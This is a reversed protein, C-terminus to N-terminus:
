IAGEENWDTREYIIVLDGEPEAYVTWGAAELFPKAQDTLPDHKSLVCFDYKELGFLDTVNGEEDKALCSDDFLYIQDRDAIHPLFSTNALVSAEKPISRISMEATQYNAENGKYIDVLLWKGSAMATTTVVTVIAATIMARHRWLKPLDRANKLTLYLLLCSPGFIYQYGIKIAYEYGAGIILNMLVYPLLLWFRHLKRTLFPLFLLPFMTQIFFVLTEERMLLSILYAPDQFVTRVVGALGEQPNVMLDRFRTTTMFVGDGYRNLWGMICVFYIAALAAALLGHKRKDGKEEFFFFLGICIVFVPADEKVICTLASMVYFLPINKRDAAYLLWILITPLFANEHFEYYCPMILGGYFLGVLCVAVRVFGKYGHRGAILFFPVIGAVALFAQAILLTEGRPFLMYVPLLLYYIYSGHIRFHSMARARECTTVATLHEKLSHFMQVFIGMDFCNTGFNLYNAVTTVAVFAFVAVALFFVIMGAGADPIREFCKMNIKGLAYNVLIAAIVAAAMGFYFSDSKWVLCLAFLPACVALIGYDVSPYRKSLIRYLLSLGLILIAIWLLKGSLSNRVAFEQWGYIPHLGQRRASVFEYASVAFFASLFRAFFHELTGYSSKLRHLTNRINM